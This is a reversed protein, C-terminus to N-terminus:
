NKNLGFDILIGPNTAPSRMRKDYVRVMSEGTHRLFDAVQRDEVGQAKLVSAATARASHPSAGKIGVQECYGQYLRRITENSLRDRAKGDAYYFVFLPSNDKAGESKRQAVLVSFREWAWEPLSQTQNYGSKPEKLVLYPVGEVTSEVDGVNLGEAEGRRLGGGFLLALLARDRIGKKTTKEPLDLLKAVQNFPILKTPRKQVRRRRPVADTIDYFPNTELLGIAYLHRFLRRLIAVRQHVTNDAMKKGDPAKRGRLWVVFAIADEHTMEKVATEFNASEKDHGIFKSLLTLCAEYCAPTKGNKLSAFDRARNILVM